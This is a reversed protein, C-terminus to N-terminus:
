LGRSSSGILKGTNAEVQVARDDYLEIMNFDKINTVDLSYGIHERCWEQIAVKVMAKEHPTGDSIRATFIKVEYGHKIWRKVREVMAPIPDGLEYKGKWGHYVAITGDFDVGIWGKYAM